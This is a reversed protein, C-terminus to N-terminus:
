SIRSQCRIKVLIVGCVLGFTLSSILSIYMLEHENAVCLVVICLNLVNSRTHENAVCLNMNMNVLFRTHHM